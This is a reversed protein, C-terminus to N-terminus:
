QQATQEGFVMLFHKLGSQGALPAPNIYLGFTDTHQKSWSDMWLKNAIETAQEETPQAQLGLAQWNQIIAPVMVGATPNLLKAAGSIVDKGDPIGAIYGYNVNQGMTATMDKSGSKFVPAVSAEASSGIIGKFTQDDMGYETDGVKIKGILSSTNKFVDGPTPILVAIVNSKVTYDASVQAFHSGATNDVIKPLGLLQSAMSASEAGLNITFWAEAGTLWSNMNAVSDINLATNSAKYEDRDESETKTVLIFLPGGSRKMECNTVNITDAYWGFVMQSFSDYFKCNTIDVSTGLDLEANCFWKNGVINDLKVGDLKAQFMMLEAPGNVIDTKGSNGIFTVNKVERTGQSNEAGHKHYAMFSTHPENYMTDKSSNFDCVIYIGGNDAKIVDKGNGDKEVTLGNKYGLTMYNGNVGIGNSVYLAKQNRYGEEEWAEGRYNEKISGELLGKLHTPTCENLASEYSPEWSLTAKDGKHWFYSDPLNKKEVTINNHLVVQKVDAYESLLHEDWPRKNAEKSKYDAWSKVDLNDLVSLGQADYVNYGDVVEFEITLTRKDAAIGTKYGSNLTVALKFQNGVAKDTFYYVNNEVKSLYKAIDANGILNGNLYLNYTTKIDSVETPESDIDTLDQVTATADFVYGNVSGVKYMENAKYFETEKNTQTGKQALYYKYGNPYGFTVVAINEDVLEEVEVDQSVTLEGYTVSFVKKGPTAVDLKDYKAGSDSLTVEKKTNNDYTLVLIIKSYDIVQNQKFGSPMTGDKFAVGTLKATPKNTDDCAVFALCGVLITLALLFATFKKM